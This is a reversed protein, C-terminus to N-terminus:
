RRKLAQSGKAGDVPVMYGAAAQPAGAPLRCEGPCVACCVTAVVSPIALKVQDERPLQQQLNLLDGRRLSM